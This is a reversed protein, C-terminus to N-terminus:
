CRLSGRAAFRMRRTVTELRPIQFAERFEDDVDQDEDNKAAPQLRADDVSRFGAGSLSVEQPGDEKAEAEARDAQDRIDALEPFGAQRTM